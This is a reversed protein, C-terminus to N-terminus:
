LIRYKKDETKAFRDKNMLALNITAKKVMRQKSVAEMIEEKTLPSKEKLITEIVDARETELDPLRCRRLRVDLGETGAGDNARHNVILGVNSPGHEIPRIQRM